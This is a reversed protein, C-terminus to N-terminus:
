ISGNQVQQSRKPCSDVGSYNGRITKTQGVSRDDLSGKGFSGVVLLGSADLPPRYPLRLPLWPSLPSIGTIPRLNVQTSVLPLSTGPAQLRYSVPGVANGQEDM